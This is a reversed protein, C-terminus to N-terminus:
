LELGLQIRKKDANLLESITKTNQISYQVHQVVRYNEYSPDIIEKFIEYRGSTYESFVGENQPPMASIIQFGLEKMLYNLITGPRRDDVRNFAEDILLFSLGDKKYRPNGKDFASYAAISRIIYYSTTAQGGSDTALKDLSVSHRDDGNLVKHIDYERYNRYDSYRLLETVSKGQDENLLLGEITNKADLYEEPLDESYGLAGISALSLYELYDYIPKLDPLLKYKIMFGEDGFRHRKLMNNISDLRNKGEQIAYYVRNCFEQKFSKDFEERQKQLSDLKKLLINGSVENLTSCHDSYLKSIIKYSDISSDISEPLSSVIAPHVCEKNHEDTLRKYTYFIDKARDNFSTPIVTHTYTQKASDKLMAIHMSRSEEDGPVISTIMDEIKTLEESHLKIDTESQDIGKVIDQEKANIKAIEKLNSKAKEKIDEIETKITTLRQSIAKYDGLDLSNIKQGIGSLKTEKAIIGTYIKSPDIIQISEFHKRAGKLHQLRNNAKTSEQSLLSQEEALHRYRESKSKEGIFCNRLDELCQFMTYGSAGLGKKMLGRNAFRLEETSEVQLVNGYNLVIYAEAVPHTFEMIKVISLSKVERTFREMDTLLKNGQVIKSRRKHLLMLESAEAEYNEEVIVSFRAGGLYGEIAQQWLADKIEIHECIPRAHAGPLSNNILDIDDQNPYRIKGTSHYNKLVGNVIDLENQIRRNELQADSEAAELAKFYDNDESIFLNIGGTLASLASIKEVFSTYNFSLVKSLDDAISSGKFGHFHMAQKSITLSNEAKRYSEISKDLDIKALALEKELSEKEKELSEKEKIADNGLSKSTLIFQEEILSESQEEYKTSDAELVSRKSIHDSLEKQLNAIKKLLMFEKRKYYLYSEDYFHRWENLLNEGSTVAKTLTDKSQKISEAELQINSYSRLIEQLNEIVKSLDNKELLEEKVFKHVDDAQTPYIYKVFAKAARVADNYPISNVGNFSAYLKVLYEKRTHFIESNIGYTSRLYRHLEDVEKIEIEGKENIRTFDEPKLAHGMCIGYSEVGGTARRNDGSGQAEARGFLWASMLEGDKDEFVCAVVGLSEDRTFQFQDAGLLYAAFTRYRKTKKRTTVESQGANYNKIENHDATMVAQILDMLTSKGSGTEGVILNLGNEFPYMNRTLNGWNFAIAYKIKM